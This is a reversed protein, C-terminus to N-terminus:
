VFLPRLVFLSGTLTMTKQGREGTKPPLPSPHPAPRRSSTGNFIKTARSSVFRSYYPAMTRKLASHSLDEVAWWKPRNQHAMWSGGWEIGLRTSDHM